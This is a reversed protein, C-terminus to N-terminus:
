GKDAGRGGAQVETSKGKRWSMSHKSLTALTVPCALLCTLSVDLLAQLHFSIPNPIFYSLFLIPFSLTLSITLSLIVPPRLCIIVLVLVTKRAYHM